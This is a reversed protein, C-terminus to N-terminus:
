QFHCVDKLPRQARVRAGNQVPISEVLLAFARGLYSYRQVNLFTCSKQVDVWIGAVTAFKAVPGSQSGVPLLINSASIRADYILLYVDASASGDSGDHPKSFWKLRQSWGPNFCLYMFMRRAVNCHENFQSYHLSIWAPM